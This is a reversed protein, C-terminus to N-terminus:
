GILYADLVTTGIPLVEMLVNDSGTPVRWRDQYVVVRARYPQDLDVLAHDNRSSVEATGRGPSTEAILAVSRAAGFLVAQAGADGRVLTGASASDRLVQTWAEPPDLFAASEQLLQAQYIRTQQSSNGACDIVKVNVRYARDVVFDFGARQAAVPVIWRRVIDTDLDRIRVRQRCIGSSDSATWTVRARISAQPGSSSLQAGVVFRLGPHVDLSPGEADPAAASGSLVGGTFLSAAVASLLFSALIPTRKLLPM